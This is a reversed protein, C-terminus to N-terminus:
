SSLKATGFTANFMRCWIAVSQYNELKINKPVAYRQSGSYKQLRNIIAYDGEKIPYAPPTTTALVDESRHLIIYLDPGSSSTNFAKNLELYTKGDVTVIKVEGTTEHEGAVFTGSKITKTTNSPSDALETPSNVAPPSVEAQGTCGFTLTMIGLIGIYNLKM